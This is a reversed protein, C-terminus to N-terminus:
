DTPTREHARSVGTGQAEDAAAEQIQRVADEGLDRRVWWHWGPSHGAPRYDRRLMPELWDYRRLGNITIFTPRAREIAEAYGALGGPYTADTYDALGNGFMQYRSPNTRDALVLAQPAGVAWITADAPAADLIRETGERQAILTDSREQVASVTASAVLTTAVVGIVAIRAPRPMRKTITRAVLGIGLAAMPLLVLADAWGNFARFSWALGALTAAGSAVVAVDATKQRRAITPLRLVAGVISAALGIGLLWMSAGFGDELDLTGAWGWYNLLGGQHTYEAHIVLFGELFEDLAGALTFGLVCLATPVLGGVVFALVARLLTRRGTLSGIAVLAAALGVFFAPQWTLTALALAVGAWAWRRHTLAWLCCALFLVMATKERPGTTALLAFGDFALISVAAVLGAGRSRLADRGLCYVVWVCAVSALMMVVRMGLLEDAGVLDAGWAGIAPILQGLPGARTLIAVYPPVGELTQQAGYAYVALDRTLGGEFGRVLFVAAALLVVLVGLPDIRRVVHGIRVLGGSLM